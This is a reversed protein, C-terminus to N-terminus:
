IHHLLNKRKEKAWETYFGIAAIVMLIITSYNLEWWTMPCGVVYRVAGIVQLISAITLIVAATSMGASKKM